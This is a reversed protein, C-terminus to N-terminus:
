SNRFTVADPQVNPLKRLIAPLARAYATPLGLDFILRAAAVPASQRGLYWAIRDKAAYPIPEVREDCVRLRDGVRVRGSDLFRGLYGRRHMLQGSIGTGVLRGCPECHFTLHIRADGIAVISGSPLDYLGAFDVTINEWLAGPPLGLDRSVPLSTM